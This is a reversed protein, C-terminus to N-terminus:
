SLSIQRFCRLGMDISPIPHGSPRQRRLRIRRDRMWPRHTPWFGRLDVGKQRAVAELRKKKSFRISFYLAVSVPIGFWFTYRGVLEAADGSTNAPNSFAPISVAGNGAKEEASWTRSKRSIMACPFIGAWRITARNGPLPSSAGQTAM